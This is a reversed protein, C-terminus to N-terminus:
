GRAIERLRAKVERAIDGRWAQANDVFRAVIDDAGDYGYTTESALHVTGVDHMGLMVDLYPQAPHTGAGLFGTGVEALRPYDAAAIRALTAVDATGVSVIRAGHEAAVAQARDHHLTPSALVRHQSDIVLYM